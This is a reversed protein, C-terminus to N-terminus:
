PRDPGLAHTQTILPPTHACRKLTSEAPGFLVMGHVVLANYINIFFAVLERRDLYSLEVQARARAGSHAAPVSPPSGGGVVM